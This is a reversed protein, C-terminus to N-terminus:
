GEAEPEPRRALAIFAIGAAIMPLSLIQGMTLGLTETFQLAHGLPNGPGQFFADPQRFLEVFARAAGYGILFVGILTGPRKLADKRTGMWWMALFLLAGEFLAEYLQSPHRPLDGANPFIVAWPVDTTRGWLEANIFNALRGLLLGIPAAMAVADGVQLLPLRNFRCYGIVGLVVGLFGGHFSMGGNWVQLIEGPNALYHGPQYFLVFGLRGGLIVGLVMWTLLDEPQDPTMPAANGPWIAPRKMLSRVYRWALVLGVIYALAYWRLSLTAGFLDVSLLVPDVNPFPIALM